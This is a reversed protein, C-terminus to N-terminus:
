MGVAINNNDKQTKAALLGACHVRQKWTARRMGREGDDARDGTEGGHRV